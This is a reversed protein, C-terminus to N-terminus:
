PIILKRVTEAWRNCHPESSTTALYCVEVASNEDIWRKRSVELDNTSNIQRRRSVELGTNEDIWCRRSVERRRPQVPQAVHSARSWFSAGHEAIREGTAM